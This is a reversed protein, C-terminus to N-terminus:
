NRQQEEKRRKNSNKKLKSPLLSNTATIYFEKPTLERSLLKPTPHLIRFDHPWFPGDESIIIGYKNVYPTTNEGNITRQDLKNLIDAKNSKLISNGYLFSSDKNISIIPARKGHLNRLDFVSDDLLHEDNRNSLSRRRHCLNTYSELNFSNSSLKNRQYDFPPLHNQTGYSEKANLPHLVRQNRRDIESWPDNHQANTEIKQSPLRKGARLYQRRLKALREQRETEDLVQQVQRQLDEELERHINTRWQEYTNTDKKASLPRDTNITTSSSPRIQPLKLLPLKMSDTM